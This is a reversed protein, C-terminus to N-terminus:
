NENGSNKKKTYFQTKLLPWKPNAVIPVNTLM